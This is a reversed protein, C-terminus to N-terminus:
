LLCSEAFQPVLMSQASQSWTKKSSHECIRWGLSTRHFTHHCCGVTHVQTSAISSRNAIPAESRYAVFWTSGRARSDSEVEIWSTKSPDFDVWINSRGAHLWTELYSSCVQRACHLRTQDPMHWVFDPALVSGLAEPDRSNIARTCHTILARCVADIRARRRPSPQAMLKECASPPRICGAEDSPTAADIPSESPLWKPATRLEPIYQASM